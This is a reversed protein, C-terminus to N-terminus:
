IYPGTRIEGSIRSRGERDTRVCICKGSPRTAERCVRPRPFHLTWPDIPRDAVIKSPFGPPAQRLYRCFMFAPLGPFGRCFWRLDVSCEVSAAEKKVSLIGGPWEVSFFLCICGLPIRLYILPKPPPEGSSGASSKPPFGRAPSCIIRTFIFIRKVKRSIGTYKYSYSRPRRGVTRAGLVLNEM